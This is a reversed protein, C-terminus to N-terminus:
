SDTKSDNKASHCGDVGSAFSKSRVHCWTETREVLFRHGFCLRRESCHHCWYAGTAGLSQAAAFYSGAATLPTQVAAAVSGAAVGAATFGLLPLAGFAAGTAASSFYGARRANSQSVLSEARKRVEGDLVFGAQLMRLVACCLRRDEADAM